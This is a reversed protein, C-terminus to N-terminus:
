NTEEKRKRAMHALSGTQTETHTHAQTYSYTDTYTHRQTHTGASIIVFHVKVNDDYSRTATATMVCAAPLWFSQGAVGRAAM